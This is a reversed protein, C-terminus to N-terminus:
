KNKLRSTRRVPNSQAVAKKLRKKKIVKEKRFGLKILLEEQEKINDLRIQEYPSLKDDDEFCPIVKVKKVIKM